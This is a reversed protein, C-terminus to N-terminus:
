KDREQPLRFWGTIMSRIENIPGVLIVMALHVIVFAVLSWAAIFHLSRATQRGGFVDVLWPLTANIWPSMTLGTLIVLPILGGTVSLYALKQLINYDASVEERYLWFMAHHRCQRWLHNPKVEHRHPILDRWAHGNLFSLIMFAFTGVGFAWAATLHWRRAWALDYHYPITSWPPFARRTQSGDADTQIGLVGTTAIEATGIRLYGTTETSGIELWAPDFHAGSHGWYLRPHANFIMLGSMFLVIMLAASAWHWIRTSVRHRKIWREPKVDATEVAPTITEDFTPDTM